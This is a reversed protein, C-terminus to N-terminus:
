VGRVVFYPQNTLRAKFRPYLEVDGDDTHVEFYYEIPFETKTYAGSISAFYCTGRKEMAVVVYNEAQDVHRYHLRVDTTELTAALMLPMPEGRVFGQPKSHHAAVVPWFVNSTEPVGATARRKTVAIRGAVKRIAADVKPSAVKGAKSDVMAELAAIDKQIAPLRDMWFGRLYDQEGVTIDTLYARGADLALERWVDSAQRYLSIAAQIAPQEQSLEFIHFLLGARFKAAFFEGLGAQIAIDLHMRRYAASDQGSATQRAEALMRRGAAAFSQIWEAVEVPTYKGSSNGSLLEEAYENISCFLAPDFPSANGFVRPELADSYPGYDKADVMSQNWYMEPWYMNNGASPAHATTVVPLIRSVSALASQMAEAAKGFQREFPRRLVEPKTEPDYLMRGWVRTSYEFKEWDWRPNLSADAYGCRSGAIGSGRRGKFTLPEMIEVGDSGCFQFARSYGAAFEPDGWLM